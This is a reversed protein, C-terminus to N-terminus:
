DENLDYRVLTSPDLLHPHRFTITLFRGDKVDYIYPEGTLPHVPDYGISREAFPDDPSPMEGFEARWALAALAIMHSVLAARRSAAWHMNSRGSALWRRLDLAYWNPTTRDWQNVKEMKGEWLVGGTALGLSSASTRDALFDKTAQVNVLGVQDVLRRARLKEWPTFFYLDQGPLPRPTIQRRVHEGNDIQKHHVYTDVLALRLSTDDPFDLYRSKLETIFAEIEDSDARSKDAWLVLVQGVNPLTWRYIMADSTTVTRMWHQEFNLMAMLCRRLEVWDKRGSLALAYGNLLETVRATPFQNSELDELTHVSGNPGSAVEMLEPILHKNAEYMRRANEEIEFKAVEAVSVDEPWPYLRFQEYPQLRRQIGRYRAATEREIPTPPPLSHLRTAEVATLAPIEYARYTAAMAPVLTVSLLGISAFRSWSAISNREVLWDRCQGYSATWYLIPLLGAGWWWPVKLAHMLVSLPLLLFWVFLACSLAVIPQRLVIAFMQALAFSTALWLAIWGPLLALMGVVTSSNPNSFSSASLYCIAIFVALLPLWFFQKTMWVATASVGRQALLRFGSQTQDAAFVGVGAVLAGAFLPGLASYFDRDNYEGTSPSWFIWASVGAVVAIGVLLWSNQRWERWWLAFWAPPAQRSPPRRRQRTSRKPERGRLLGADSRYQLAVLVFGLAILAYCVLGVRPLATDDYATVFTFFLSAYLSSAALMGATLVRSVIGSWFVGWSFGLLTCALVQWQFADFLVGELPHSGQIDVGSASEAFRQLTITAAAFLCTAVIAVLLKAVFLLFIPFAQERLWRDSKSEREGAYTMAGAGIGFMVPMLFSVRTMFFQSADSMLFHTYGMLVAMMGVCSLWLGRLTRYEKWLLRLLLRM